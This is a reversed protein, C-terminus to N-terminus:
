RRLRAALEARQALSVARDFLPLILERLQPSLVAELFEMANDHVDPDDSQLGVYASHMDHAPYLIKLLRFVREGEQQAADRIRAAEGSDDSVGVRSLAQYSRYNAQIEANLASEILRRDFRREPHLQGLKNLATIVRHRVVDDSDGVSELLVFQAAPTGITQLVLPIERRIEIPTDTDILYDRLTGSVTDGMAVFVTIAVDALEPQALRKVVRSLMSRKRLRGVAGIAAAVVEADSDELLKRLDADFLDPVFGLLQAAEIRTRRGAEGTESVMASVIARAADVNQSRGPRALFAAMAARLSFDPFDGLKEIRELPDVHAHQSLFLLAETRVELAPDYLLKEVLAVLDSAGERALLRLAQARVEPSPHQVLGRVAPHVRRDHSADLLSLAYLVEGASDSELQEILLDAAAREIVPAAAREADVRHQHISERLNEVYQTRAVVAAWLWGALALLTVWTLQVPTLGVGAAGILIAVGGLADGMRFVVTDVFSKVRFTFNAPLPLYLLETTAKDISYRLVQDSAKLAVVAMLTGSLLLGISSATMAVPVVFLTVGIGASQLIRSTFLVQLALAVLGAFMNFSGFFMALEDTAPINEKAIAKFQWGAITTVFAALWVLFAIATLYRSRRVLMFSAWLGGDGSEGTAQEHETTQGPRTPWVSWVVAASAISTAAVWLLMSETGFNETIVQTAYGGAVWGLIAGSGILGFVRKAERTTLMYNALTWVQMPALVSLVGVWIYIAVFLAGSERSPDAAGLSAWWFGVATAAFLSLSTVQVNRLNTRAGLRIYVGAVVGVLAAVAIDVYPLTTAAFRDLFLADRAAKSAVSGSIALFLYILLPLARGLETPSLGLLRQLLILM